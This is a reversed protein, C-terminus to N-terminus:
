CVLDITAALFKRRKTDASVAVQEILRVAM